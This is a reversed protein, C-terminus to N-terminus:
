QAPKTGFIKGIGRRRFGEYLENAAAEAITRGYQRADKDAMTGSHNIEVQITPSFNMQGVEVTSRGLAGAGALAPVQPAPLTVAGIANGLKKELYDKFDILTYAAKKMKDTLIMEGEELVSLVENDKSTAEGGAIGGVHYQPLEEILQSGGNNIWAEQGNYTVAYWKGSTEGRYELTTGEGVVGLIKKSTSPGTRVNWRGKVM